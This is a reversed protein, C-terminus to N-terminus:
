DQFLDLKEEAWRELAEEFSHRIVDARAKSRPKLSVPCVKTNTIISNEYATAPDCSVPIENGLDDTAPTIDFAWLLRAAFLLVSAEALHIGPCIRRGWGFIYHDRQMPDAELSSEFTSKTNGDYREPYFIDPNPYHNPDQQMAWVNGFIISDKPIYYGEIEDEEPNSHPIGMNIIARWRMVEKVIQNIYNMQSLDEFTPLRTEPVAADVAEQGKRMVRPNLLMAMTFNMLVISTTDSGAEMLTMAQYAICRDDLYKETQEAESMGKRQEFLARILGPNPVGRDMQHQTRDLLGKMFPWQWKLKRNVEHEWTRLFYPLKKFIPFIDVLYQGPQITKSMDDMIWFVTKVIDDRLSTVRHGYALTMMVSLTYRRFSAQVDAYNSRQHEVPSEAWSLLEHLAQRSELEQIKHNEKTRSISLILHMQRRFAAHMPGSPIFAIRRNQSLLESGVHPSNRSSFKGGRKEFLEKALRPDNVSIITKPGVTVKFIPGYVQAWKQFTLFPSVPDFQFSNDGLKNTPPGPIKKLGRKEAEGPQLLYLGLYYLGLISLISVASLSPHGAIAIATGTILLM